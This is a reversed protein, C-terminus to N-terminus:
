SRSELRELIAALQELKSLFAQTRFQSAKSRSTGRLRLGKIVERLVQVTSSTWLQPGSQQPTADVLLCGGGSGRTSCALYYLQFQEGMTEINDYLLLWLWTLISLANNRGLAGPLAVSGKRKFTSPRDSGQTRRQEAVYRSDNQSTNCLQNSVISFTADGPVANTRCDFQVKPNWTSCSSCGSCFSTRPM